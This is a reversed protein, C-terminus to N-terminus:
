ELTEVILHSASVTLINTDASKCRIKVTQTGATTNALLWVGTVNANPAGSLFAVTQATKAVEAGNAYVACVGTTATAKSMNLTATVRIYSTFTTGAAEVRTPDRSPTVSVSAGTLDAYSTTAFTTSTGDAVGQLFVGQERKPATTAAQALSAVSSLCLLAALAGLLRNIKM